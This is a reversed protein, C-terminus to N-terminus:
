SWGDKQEEWPSKVTRLGAMGQHCAQNKWLGRAEGKPHQCSGGGSTGKRTVSRLVGAATACLLHHHSLCHHYSLLKCAPSLQTQAGNNVDSFHM